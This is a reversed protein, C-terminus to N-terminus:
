QNKRKYNVVCQKLGDDISIAPAWNLRHKAKTIDVQLSSFLRQSIAKKGIVALGLRMITEPIPLLNISKGMVSALKTLLETTSLDVGDSVLFIQNAAAPHSICVTIFNILNGLSVLSRANHISGFPLPYGKALLSMMSAFNGKVGEGYVLPPRIIVVEMGTLKALEILALEAEYKSLGYPDTPPSSVEETFPQGAPTEEGNVKISSLFVFRKVGAAAAQRALTLTGDTNVARFAQYPDQATDHMVHVRAACHIVVQDAKLWPTWDSTSDLEPGQQEHPRQPSHRTLGTVPFGLDLLHQCLSTGVFGNAGTILISVPNM